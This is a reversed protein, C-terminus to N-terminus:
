PLTKLYDPFPIQTKQDPDQCPQGFTTRSTKSFIKM